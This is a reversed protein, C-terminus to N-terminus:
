KMLVMPAAEAEMTILYYQDPRVVVICCVIRINAEAILVGTTYAYSSLELQM